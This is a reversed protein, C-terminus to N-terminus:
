DDEARLKDAARLTHGPRPRSPVRGAGAPLAEIVEDHAPGLPSSRAPPSRHETSRWPGVM